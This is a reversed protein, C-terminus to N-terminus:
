PFKWLSINADGLAPTTGQEDREDLGAEAKAFTDPGKYKKKAGLGKEIRKFGEVMDKKKLAFTIRFWGAEKEHFGAGYAVAAGASAIKTWLAMDSELTANKGGLRAFIFVGAVPRYFPIGHFQCFGSVYDASERLLNRSKSLWSATAGLNSFLAQTMLSTASSVTYREVTFVGERLIANNQTVFLGLRLGSAGLDKSIGYVLHVRAPNVGLKALDMSLVSTFNTEPSDIIDANPKPKSADGAEIERAHNGKKPGGWTTLGYIEDSIFHINHKEAFKLVAEMYSKPYVHGTPNHPNCIIIGRVPIGAKAIADEYHKIIVETDAFSDPRDVEVLRNNNRLRAANNFGGWFPADILLGEGEDCVSFVLSDLIVMAGGQAVVHEALVPSRPNFFRNLFNAAGKLIAPDGPTSRQYDLSEVSFERRIAEQMAPIEQPRILWNEANDMGIYGEPVKPSSPSDTDHWHVSERVRSSIGAVSSPNTTNAALTLVVMLPFVRLLRISYLILHKMM